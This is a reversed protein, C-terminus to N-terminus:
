AMTSDLETIVPESFVFNSALDSVAQLEACANVIDPPAHRITQSLTDAPSASSPSLAMSAPTNLKVARLDLADLWQRYEQLRQKQGAWCLEGDRDDITM